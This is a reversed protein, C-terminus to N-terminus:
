GGKRGPGGTEKLSKGGTNHVDGQYFTIKTGKDMSAFVLASAGPVTQASGRFDSHLMQSPGASHSVAVLVRAQAHWCDAAAASPSTM